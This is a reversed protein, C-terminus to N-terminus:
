TLPISIEIECTENECNRFQFKVSARYLLAYDQEYKELDALLQGTAHETYLIKLDLRSQEIILDLKLVAHKERNAKCFPELINILALSAMMSDSPEGSVNLTVQLNNEPEFHLFTIFRQLANLEELVPTLSLKSRYLRYRLLESFTIISEPTNSKRSVAAKKLQRLSRLMFDPSITTKLLDLKVLEIKRKEEEMELILSNEESKEMFFLVMAFVLFNFIYGTVIKQYMLWFGPDPAKPDTGPFFHRLFYVNNLTLALFSLLLVLWFLLNKNRKFLYPVLYLCYFYYFIAINLNALVFHDLIFKPTVPEKAGMLTGLILVWAWYLVHAVWRYNSFYVWRTRKDIERQILDRM